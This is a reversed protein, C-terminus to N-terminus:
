EVCKPNKRWKQLHIIKMKSVNFQTNQTLCASYINIGIESATFYSFLYTLFRAFIITCQISYTTSNEISSSHIILLFSNGFHGVM